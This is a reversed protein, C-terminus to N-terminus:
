AAGGVTIAKAAEDADAKRIIGDALMGAVSVTPIGRVVAGSKYEAMRRESLPIDAGNLLAALQGDDTPVMIASRVDTVVYPTSDRQGKTVPKATATGKPMVATTVPLDEFREIDPM